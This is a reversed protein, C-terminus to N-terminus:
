PIISLYYKREYFLICDKILKTRLLLDFCVLVQM